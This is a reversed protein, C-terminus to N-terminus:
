IYYGIKSGFSIDDEGIKYNVQSRDNFLVCGDEPSVLANCSAKDVTNSLEYYIGVKKLIEIISPQIISFM